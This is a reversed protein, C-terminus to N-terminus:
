LLAMKSVDYCSKEKELNTLRNAYFFHDFIGYIEIESFMM